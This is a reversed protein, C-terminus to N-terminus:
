HTIQHLGRVWPYTTQMSNVLREDATWFECDLFEAVALFHADYARPQNFQTAIEYARLTLHKSRFYRIDFALLSQLHLRAQEITLKGTYVHRRLIAALEYQLLLPASIRAGGTIWEGLKERATDSYTEPLITALLVSSDIVVDVVSHTM